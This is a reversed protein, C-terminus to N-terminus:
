PLDEGGPTKTGLADRVCDRLSQRIRYLSKSVAAITVGTQEAIAKISLASTYRMDLLRRSHDPLKQECRQLAAQHNTIPDTQSQLDEAMQTLLTVDFCLRDRIRRKRHALVQNFAVRYAWSRFDALAAVREADRWLALNTEQLVDYADESRHVLSFIYLYLRRQHEAILTELRDRSDGSDAGLNNM